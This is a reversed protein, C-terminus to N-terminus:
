PSEGAKPKQRSSGSRILWYTASRDFGKRVSFADEISKDATLQWCSFAAM